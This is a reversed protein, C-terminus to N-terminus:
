EVVNLKSEVGITSATTGEQPPRAEPLTLGGGGIEDECTDAGAIHEALLNDALAGTKTGEAAATAAAAAATAPLKGGGDAGGGAAGDEGTVLIVSRTTVPTKGGGGPSGCTGGAAAADGGAELIVSDPSTAGGTGVIESPGRQM